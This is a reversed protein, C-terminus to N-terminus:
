RIEGLRAKRSAFFAQPTRLRRAGEWAVRGVATPNCMPASMMGCQKQDLWFHPVSRVDSQSVISLTDIIHGLSADPSCSISESDYTSTYTRIMLIRTDHSTHIEKTMSYFSQRTKKECM